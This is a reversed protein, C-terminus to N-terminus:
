ENQSFGSLVGFEDAAFLLEKTSKALTEARWGVM